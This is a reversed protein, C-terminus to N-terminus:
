RVMACIEFTELLGYKGTKTEKWVELENEQKFIRIMIPSSEEMGKFAMKTKLKKNIPLSAAPNKGDSNSQCSILAFSIGVVLNALILPVRFKTSRIKTM